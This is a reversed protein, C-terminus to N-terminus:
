GCLWRLVRCVCLRLRQACWAAAGLLVGVGCGVVYGLGVVPASLDPCPRRSPPRRRRGPPAPVVARLAPAGGGRESWGRGGLAGVLFVRM